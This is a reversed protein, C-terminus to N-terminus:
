KDKETDEENTRSESESSEESITEWQHHRELANECDRDRM